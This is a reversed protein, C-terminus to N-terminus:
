KLQIKKSNKRRMSDGKLNFTYAGHVMRDCIADAITPDPLQHHWKNVPYQTTVVISGLQQKEEIVDMLFGAEMQEIPQMLFDDLILVKIRSLKKLYRLYTGVGKAARIEEFLIRYRIKKVPYGMKCAQLGISEALYTKGCGTPGTIIVHHPNELWSPSALRLVEEKQLNRAVSYELNELCAQEPKFDAANIMRKLKRNKRAVYEDEVLLAVFQEATIGNHDNNAIRQQFSEAMVSLRMEKMQKIVQEKHM